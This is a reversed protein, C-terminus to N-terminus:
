FLLAWIKDLDIYFEQFGDLDPTVKRSEIISKYIEKQNKFKIIELTKSVPDIIWYEAVNLLRCIERKTVTDHERYNTSIIEIIWTPNGKFFTKSLNVREIVSNSL